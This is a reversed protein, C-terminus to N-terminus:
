CSWRGTRDGSDHPVSIISCACSAEVSTETGHHTPLTFIARRRIKMPDLSTPPPVAIGEVQRSAGAERALRGAPFGPRLRAECLGSGERLRGGRVAAPRRQVPRQRREQEAGRGRATKQLAENRKKESSLYVGYIMKVVYDDPFGTEARVLTCEVSYRLGLSAQEDARQTWPPGDHGASSPPEPVLDLIFQLDAGITGTQGKSSASCIQFQLSVPGYLGIRQRVVPDVSRYDMRPIVGFDPCDPRVGAAWTPLVWLLGIAALFRLYITM